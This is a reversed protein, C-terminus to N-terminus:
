VSEHATTATRMIVDKYANHMVMHMYARVERPTYYCDEDDGTAVPEEQVAAQPAPGGHM